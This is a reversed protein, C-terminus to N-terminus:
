VLINQSVDNTLNLSPHLTNQPHNTAQYPNLPPARPFANYYGPPNSRQPPPQPNLVNPNNAWKFNPHDRNAQFPQFPRQNTNPFHPRQPSQYQNFANVQEMNSGQALYTACVEFSHGRGGCAECSYGGGHTEGSPYPTSSSAQTFSVNSPSLNDFKRSLEGIMAQLKEGDKGSARQRPQGWQDDTRAMKEILEKAQDQPMKLFAGGASSNVHDRYWTLLRTYFRACDVVGSHCSTPM